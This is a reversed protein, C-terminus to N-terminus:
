DPIVTALQAVGAECQSRRVNYEGSALQHRVKSDCIVLKIKESLPPYRAELSRCDLLLAHGARGHCSVFQDMIGSRLGIYENEVRQCLLAVDTMGVETLYADIGAIALLALAISVELAASSSLGSGVPIDGDIILNAGVLRHGAKLLMFAVGRVYDSWHKKAGSAVDELEFLVTESYNVSTVEIADGERLGAATWTAFNIAAPLVFGENYDTHDGILNVRGPARFVRPEEGYRRQYDARIEAVM